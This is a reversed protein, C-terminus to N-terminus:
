KMPCLVAGQLIAQGCRSVQELEAQMLELSIPGLRHNFTRAFLSLVMWGHPM